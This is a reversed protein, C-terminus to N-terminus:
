NKQKTKLTQKITRSALYLILVTFVKEYDLRVTHDLRM